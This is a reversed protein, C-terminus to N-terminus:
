RAGRAASRLDTVKKQVAPASPSPGKKPSCRPIRSKVTQRLKAIAATYAAVEEDAYGDITGRDPGAPPPTYGACMPLAPNDRCKRAKAGDECEALKCGGSCHDACCKGRHHAEHERAADVFERCANSGELEEPSVPRSKVQDGDLYDQQAHVYCDDNTEMSPPDQHRGPCEPLKITRGDNALDRIKGDLIDGARKQVVSSDRGPDRGTEKKVQAVAEDLAQKRLGKNAYLRRLQSWMKIQRGYECPPKYRCDGKADFCDTLARAPVSGAALALLGLACAAAARGWPSRM